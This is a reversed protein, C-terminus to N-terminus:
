QIAITNVTFFQSARPWFVTATFHKKFLESLISSQWSKLHEL